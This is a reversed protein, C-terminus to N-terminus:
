LSNHHQRKARLWQMLLPTTHSFGKWGQQGRGQQSRRAPHETLGPSKMQIQSWFSECAGPRATARSRMRGTHHAGMLNQRDYRRCQTCVRAQILQQGLDGLGDISCTGVLRDQSVDGNLMCSVVRRLALRKAYAAAQDGLPEGLEPCHLGELRIAQNGVVITDGDRVHTVTGAITAQSTGSLVELGMAATGFTLM